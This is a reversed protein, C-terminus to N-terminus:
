ASYSSGSAVTYLGRGDNHFRSDNSLLACVSRLTTTFGKARLATYAQRPSVSTSSSALIDCLAETITSFCVDSWSALGFRSTKGIPRIHIGPRIRHRLHEATIKSEPFRQLFASHIENIHMPRGTQELIDTIEAVTDIHNRKLVFQGWPSVHIGYVSSIISSLLSHAQRSVDFPLSDPISDSVNCNQDTSRHTALLKDFAKLSNNISFKSDLEGSIAYLHGSFTDLRFPAVMAVMRIFSYPTCQLNEQSIIDACIDSDEALFPMSFLSSYADWGCHKSLSPNLDSLRLRVIGGIRTDTLNHLKALESLSWEKNDILRAHRRIICEYRNVSSMLYARFLYFMPYNDHQATYSTVFDAQQDALFPFEIRVIRGIIEVDSLRLVEDYFAAFDNYLTNLDIYTKTKRNLSPYTVKGKNDLRISDLSHYDPFKYRIANASSTQFASVHRDYELALYDAVLPSVPQSFRGVTGDPTVSDDDSLLSDPLSLLFSELECQCKYGFSYLNMFDFHRNKLELVKDLDYIGNRMLANQLKVSISGAACLQELSNDRM